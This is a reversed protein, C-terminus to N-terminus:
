GPPGAQPQAGALREVTSRLREADPAGMRQYRALSERYHASAREPDDRAEALEGLLELTRGEWYLSGAARFLEVARELAEAAAAHDGLVTRARGLHALARAAEYPEGLETLTRQALLLEPVALDPRGRAVAIEALTMRTLAAGRQYGVALRLRLAREFCDQAEDLRGAAHHIRGIGHLAQGQAKPEGGALAAALAEQFLPMAREGRGLNYLRTATDTLMRALAAPDGERRAAALGSEHVASGLEHARLRLFLPHMADALQWVLGDWAHAEATRVAAALHGRRADLWALAATRDSEAFPAPPLPRRVDRRQTAHNPTLVREAASCTALYWELVRRLADEREGAPELHRARGAAHLRVLDHCRYRGDGLEEVLNAEALVDLLDEATALDLGALAACEAAGFDAFPLLGMLHYLRGPLESLGACSADLAGQVASEGALRLAALRGSERELAAAADALSMRPRAAVRAAVVSLALALGGCHAALERAAEPEAGTRGSGIRHALVEESASEDLLGLPLFAAGDVGLGTLRFRSAVVVLAGPAGPLLQRVQAATVVNDLLVLVRRGATVSRWLAAAEAPDAPIREVGFARLFGGLTEAPGAPEGPGHGRLDAYLQGDPYDAARRAAWALLLGTKGVGAPGNVVLLWHTTVWADLSDLETGRGVFGAAPQPLQRPIPLETKASHWHLGGHVDRAQVVLGSLRASGGIGNHQIRISPLQEVWALLALELARDAAARRIAYEVLGHDTM